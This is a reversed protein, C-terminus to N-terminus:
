GFMAQATRGLMEVGRVETEFLPVIARVDPFSHWIEEMYEEQM